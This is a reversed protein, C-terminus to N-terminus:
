LKVLSPQFRIQLACFNVEIVVDCAFLVLGTVDIAEEDNHSTVVYAFHYSNNCIVAYKGSVVDVMINDNHVEAPLCEIVSIYTIVKRM